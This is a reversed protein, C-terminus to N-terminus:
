TSKKLIALKPMRARTLPKAELEQTGKNRTILYNHKQIADVLEHKKMKSYKKIQFIHNYSKVFEVIERRTINMLRYYSFFIM